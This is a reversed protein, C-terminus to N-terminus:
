RVTDIAESKTFLKYLVPVVILTLMTSTILGGIITWGLPAWLTGGSLTLPLLGGITTGTTLIIPSFRTEGSIKLAEIISKGENRLKNAYDVLIIANNVVIGVLSTLGIFATFSFSNRTILLALISGIIALPVASFVIFPQKFSRFQLVLVGFIAVIAIMIAQLMGGFSSQREEMEGAVYYEYGEPFDYNELKEIIGKTVRDTSYGRIVDASIAVNRELNFHSIELPDDIFEITALQSLPILKGALSSVYINRLDEISASGEQNTRIILDYSDGNEDTYESIRIGALCMRVTKDIESLPIGMMGAKDRNVNVKLDTRASKFPNNVNITGEQLKVIDEVDAAISKLIELNEGLLRIHVPAAVPPGQELEKVEIEVGPLSKFEDRLHTIIHEYVHADRTTLEVFLQAHNSRNIRAAINYYLRPNGHGINAAVTKIEPVELLMKEIESSLSDTKNINTGQPYNINIFFQPKEAKPFFSVGLLPFLGLCIGFIVVAIVLTKAPNKLAYDLANRYHKEIFRNMMKRIFREKGKGIIGAFRFTLYPTLVLSILLSATLTYVVTVPLSRIFDGTVDGILMIPIFAFVTTATASTIAWAIESTGKLVAEKPKLGMKMYRTSNETVVIANDVLLGLAIVFGSITTQQLGYGSLDVFGLAILISTPIAIMVVSASRFGVASFIVLGVLIIGQLLNMFFGSIRHSVSKSQDFVTQLDMNAPLTSKFTEIKPRLNRFIRLINSRPKQTATIYICRKNNMRAHYPSPEYGMSVDAVDKLYVVKGGRSYVITNRIEDLDNYAGSTKVNLRKTGIDIYGGPINTNADVIAGMLYDLPINMIALKELNVSIQLQREPVASLKINRIGPTKELDKKLQEAKHELEFYPATESRLALQLINVDAITWQMFDLTLINEPLESRMSNVKQVVANHKEDPDSGIEFEVSVHVLGDAAYSNIEMINELENVAGEIPNIVLQELDISTAGPIIVIISSAPPQVQPDESKPMYIFSVIGSLILLCIFVITFQHNELALKPLNM